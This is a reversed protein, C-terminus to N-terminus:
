GKEAMHQIAGAILMLEDHINLMEEGEVKICEPADQAMPGFHLEDSIGLEKLYRWSKLPMGLVADFCDKPSLDSIDRKMNKDSFLAGISQVGGQITASRGREVGAQADGRALALNGQQVGQGLAINSLGAGQFQNVNALASGRSSVLNSRNVATTGRVGSLAGTGAQLRDVRNQFDQQALGVAQRQLERRVNGGGLGGIAAQNRLLSREAEERLFAQEPSQEFEEFAQAQREGGLAGTTALFPDLAELQLLEGRQLEDRAFKEGKVLDVRSLKSSEIIDERAIRSQEATLQAARGAADRQAKGAETEGGGLFSKVGGTVSKVAKSM